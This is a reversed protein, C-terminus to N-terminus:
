DTQSDNGGRAMIARKPASNLSLGARKSASYIREVEECEEEQQEINASITQTPEAQTQIATPGTQGQIVMSGTQEQIYTGESQEQAAPETQVQVATPGMQGQIVIPGIQRQVQTGAAM